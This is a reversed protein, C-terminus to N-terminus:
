KSISKFHRSFTATKNELASESVQESGVYEVDSECVCVDDLEDLGSEEANDDPPIGLTVQYANDEIFALSDIAERIEQVESVM